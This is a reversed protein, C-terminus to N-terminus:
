REFSGERKMAPVLVTQYYTDYDCSRELDDFWVPETDYSWFHRGTKSSPPGCYWSVWAKSSGAPVDQPAIQAPRFYLGLGVIAVLVFLTRLGIQFWRKKPADM